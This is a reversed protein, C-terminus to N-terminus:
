HQPNRKPICEEVFEVFSHQIHAHFHTPIIIDLLLCLKSTANQVM